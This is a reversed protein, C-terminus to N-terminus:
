LRSVIDKYETLLGHNRTACRMGFRFCEVKHMRSVFRDDLEGTEKIQKSILRYAKIGKVYQLASLTYIFFNTAGLDIDFVYKTTIAAAALLFGDPAIEMPKVLNNVIQKLGM